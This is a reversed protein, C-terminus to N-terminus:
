CLLLLLLLRCEIVSLALDFLLEVAVVLLVGDFADAAVGDFDAGVIPSVAM